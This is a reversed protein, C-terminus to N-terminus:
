ENFTGGRDSLLSNHKMVVGRGNMAAAPKFGHPGTPQFGGIAWDLIRKLVEDTDELDAVFQKGCRVAAEQHFCCLCALLIEFMVAATYRQLEM